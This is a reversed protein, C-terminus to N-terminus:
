KMSNVDSEMITIFNKKKLYHNLSGKGKRDFYFSIFNLPNVDIISNFESLQWKLILQKHFTLSKFKVITGIENMTFPM